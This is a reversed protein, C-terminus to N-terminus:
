KGVEYKIFRRVKINEGLKAIQENIVDKIKKKEDKIFPQELLCVQSYFKQLKGEAIKDLINEKKGERRAQEKYIEKEKEIVEQSIDESSIYEPSMAAIQMTLDKALSKFAENKAVFDTECNLELLVGLKSGFHIYSEIIGVKTTRTKKSEAKITGKKRLIDIAKELDGNTELLANKCDAVGAQTKERLQKVLDVNISM